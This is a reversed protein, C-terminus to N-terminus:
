IEIYSCYINFIVNELLEKKENIYIFIDNLACPLIGPSNPSGLMTFTKGSTTQGYILICGNYGEITNIVIDQCIEKYIIQSETNPTYIKEFYFKKPTYILNIIEKKNKSNLYDKENNNGGESDYFSYYNYTYIINKDENVHWFIEDEYKLLPRVRIYIRINQIKYNEKNGNYIM